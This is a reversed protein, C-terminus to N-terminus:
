LFNIPDVDIQISVSKSIKAANLWALTASQIDINKPAKLLIRWRTRGRLRMLPAPVPGLVVVDKIRHSAIDKAAKEVLEANNGSIILAIMRCFPPIAADQRCHM